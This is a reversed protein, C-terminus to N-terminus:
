VQFGIYGLIIFMAAIILQVYPYFRLQKILESDGYHIKNIITGEYKVEIPPNTADM